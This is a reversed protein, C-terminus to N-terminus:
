EERFLGRREEGASSLDAAYGCPRGQPIADYNAKDIRLHAM